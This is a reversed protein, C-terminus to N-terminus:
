QTLSSLVSGTQKLTEANAIALGSISQNFIYYSYKGVAAKGMLFNKEKKKIYFGSECLRPIAVFYGGGEEAHPTEGGGDVPQREM